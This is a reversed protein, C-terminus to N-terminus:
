VGNNLAAARLEPSYTLATSEGPELFVSPGMPTADNTIVVLKKSINKLAILQVHADYSTPALLQAELGAAGFKEETVQGASFCGSLDFISVNRGPMTPIKTSSRAPLDDFISGGPNIM